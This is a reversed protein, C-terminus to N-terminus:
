KMQINYLHAFLGDQQLLEEQTGEEIIGDKTVVMVRDANKITALRHAIIITTRDKALDDLAEQIIRETDTDM